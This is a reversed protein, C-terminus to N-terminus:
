HCELWVEVQSFDGAALHEPRIWFYYAGGDGWCWDMADDSALQLLLLKGFAPDEIPDSQVGDHYGGMRHPRNNYLSRWGPEQARAYGDPLLARRSPDLYYEIAVQDLGRPPAILITERPSMLAAPFGDGRHRMHRLELYDFHKGAFSAALQQWHDEGLPTDPDSRALMAAIQDCGGAIKERWVLWAEHLAAIDALLADADGQAWRGPAAELFALRRQQGENFDGAASEGLRLRAQECEAILLALGGEALLADRAEPDVPERPLRRLSAALTEVASRAQGFTMPRLAPAPAADDIGALPVDAYLLESLNAPSASKWSAGDTDHVTLRNPMAVIDVPWRRWVPPVDEAALWNYSGGTYVKDHVPGCDDPPRREPGIEAIHIVRHLDGDEASFHNPNVFFLLWGDRPGIGGWLDAPLDACAIQALFHLPIAGRQPYQDDVGRPWAISEPMMPLGGLWSRRLDSRLPVQRRLVATVTEAPEPLATARDPAIPQPEPQPEPEPPPVADQLASPERDDHAAADPGSDHDSDPAAPAADGPHHAARVRALRAAYAQATQAADAEPEAAPASRAKRGSGDEPSTAPDDDGRLPGSRANRRKIALRVLVILALAGAVALLVPLVLFTVDM